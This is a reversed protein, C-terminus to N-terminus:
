SVKIKKKGKQKPVLREPQTSFLSESTSVRRRAKASLLCRTVLLGQVDRDSQGKKYVCGKAGLMAQLVEDFVSIKFCV